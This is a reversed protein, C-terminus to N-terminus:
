SSSDEFLTAIKEALERALSRFRAAAGYKFYWEELSSLKFTYRKTSDEGRQIDVEGDLMDVGAMFGAWFASGAPRLRFETIRVSIRM